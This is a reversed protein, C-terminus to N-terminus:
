KVGLRGKIEGLSKDPNLRQIAVWFSDTLRHPGKVKLEGNAVDLYPVQELKDVKITEGLGM